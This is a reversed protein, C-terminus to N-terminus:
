DGVLLKHQQDSVLNLLQSFVALNFLPLHHLNTESSTPQTQWTRSSSNGGEAMADHPQRLVMKDFDGSNSEIIALSNIGIGICDRAWYNQKQNTAKSAVQM